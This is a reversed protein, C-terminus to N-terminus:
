RCNKRVRDGALSPGRLLLGGYPAAGLVATRDNLIVKDPVDELIRSLRGKDRELSFLGLRSNTGGIDGALVVSRMNTVVGTM